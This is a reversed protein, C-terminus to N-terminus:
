METSLKLTKELMILKDSDHRQCNHVTFFQKHMRM